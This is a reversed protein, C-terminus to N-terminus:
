TSAALFMRTLVDIDLRAQEPPTRCKAGETVCAHFHVLERAFSEEFREAVHVVRTGDGSDTRSYRTPAQKLWPSPFELRRVSDAFYLSITEVYEPVDLLQIWANDWRSGNALRLSGTV